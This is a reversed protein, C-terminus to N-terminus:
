GARSSTACERTITFATSRGPMPNSRCRLTKRGSSAGREAPQMSGWPGEYFAARAAAVARAVDEANCDPVQAWVEGNAPNESDFYEGSAPEHWDNNAFYQFTKM